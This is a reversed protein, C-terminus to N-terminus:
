GRCVPECIGCTLQETILQVPDSSPQVMYGMNLDYMCSILHWLCTGGTVSALRPDSVSSLFLPDTSSVGLGRSAGTVLRRFCSLRRYV